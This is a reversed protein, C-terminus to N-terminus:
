RPRVERSPPRPGSPATRSRPFPPLLAILALRPADNLVLPKKRFDVSGEDGKPRIGHNAASATRFSGFSATRRFGSARRSRAGARPRWLAVAGRCPNPSGAGRREARRIAFPASGRTRPQARLHTPALALRRVRPRVMTGFLGVTLRAGEMFRMSVATSGRHTSHHLPLTFSSPSPTSASHRGSTRPCGSCSRGVRPGTRSSAGAVRRATNTTSAPNTEDRALAQGIARPAARDRWGGGLPVRASRPSRPGAISRQRERGDGRTARTPARGRAGDERPYRIM